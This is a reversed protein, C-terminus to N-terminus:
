YDKKNKQNASPATPKVSFGLAVSYKIFPLVAVM